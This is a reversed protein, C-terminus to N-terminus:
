TWLYSGVQALKKNGGGVCNGNERVQIWQGFDADVGGWREAFSGKGGNQNRGKNGIGKGAGCGGNERTRCLCWASTHVSRKDHM